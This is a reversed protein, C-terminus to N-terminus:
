KVDSEGTQWEKLSYTKSFKNCSVSLQMSPCHKVLIACLKSVDAATAEKLLVAGACKSLLKAHALPMEPTHERLAKWLAPNCHAIRLEVRYLFPEDPICYESNDLDITPQCFEYIAYCVAAVLVLILSGVVVFESSM